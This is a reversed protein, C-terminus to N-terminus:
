CPNTSLREPHETCPHCGEGAAMLVGLTAVMFNSALTLEPMRHRVDDARGMRALALLEDAIRHVADHHLGLQVFAAQLGYQAGGSSRFWHGFRCPPFDTAADQHALVAEITQTVSAMWRHHSRTAARLALKDTTTCVEPLQQWAADAQWQAIWPVLQEAPMPRAVGYGQALTCGLLLLAAGHELTEVGEAIVPRNFAQALRVVSDVIGLDNPDDLMDRVFSQDIKILDVSLNRFYALSSYGTGFDDLAFRVGLARCGAVVQSASNLDGIAATELIELELQQPAVDPHRALASTLMAVFGEALLHDASINVSVELRTGQRLWTSLQSLATDIVWEGLALDFPQGAALQLFQGPPRLGLEPHQWRLLAEAGVVVGTRLNVKPQYYLLLENQTLAQELRQLQERHVKVQKDHEPDFLHYRNKGEQKATYMAQDAHRLLTDPDADDHPYLTLGISASVRVEANGVAMPQAISRLMRELVGHSEEPHRLNALLLVFEDGGLRALTDDERLVTQLRRAIEILLQDGVDHGHLDNVEKFGDLDLMCVALTLKDRRARALAVKMRDGLLRRNPVGTLMDYQAIHALEAEHAKLRTIDSFVALYHSLEGDGGKVAAISLIEAYLEGTKRRNWVEGSWHGDTQLAQWMAAYFAAGQRGSGLMRPSKGVVEEAEYGTIRTFAPNVETIVNHADTIMIGDYSNAFASAALRLRDSADREATVDYVYGHWLTSGDPERQPSSQGKLWKISGDALIVRYEQKWSSLTRASEAISTRFGPLDDPHIVRTAIFSGDLADDPHVGYVAAMGGSAYPFSATGDAHLHYQYIFGPVHAALKQLRDLLEKRARETQERQTIDRGIGLVGLLTGQSDFVPTKITELLEEHGDSAFRLREENVTPKGAAMAKLDHARFFDALEQPVFDHDTKGIIADEAHGFLAEFRKNCAFYIGQADKLWFLDPIANVLTKLLSHERELAAEAHKRDSIDRAYGVTGIIHGNAVVPSKYTEIWRREDGVQVQEEVHKSQGSRLVTEDDAQYSRALDAPWIDLDTKGRLADTDPQGCAQAFPANAELFRGEPDKLWVMFPFNDLVARQFQNRTALETQLAHLETINRSVGLLAPQGNWSGQVVHTDVMVETGDTKLLPLPCSEREKRLMAGLVEQALAHVRPPHVSLVHQGLLEPGHGLVKHVAPNVYIIHGTTNLVFVFDALTSFFGELNQRQMLADERASLREMALGFQIALTQLVDITSDPLRRVHKSALNLCARSRGNVRIPLVVLAVIGEAVMTPTRLLQGNDAPDAPEACTVVTTGDEVIEARPSGAPVVTAEALFADSLGTAAHLVYSGDADQLYLGGGDLDQLGLVTDLIARALTDRDPSGVLVQSFAVQLRHHTDARVLTTVDSVVGASMRPKGHADFAQVGGKAELWRWAGHPGPVRFRVATRAHGPPETLLAMVHPWDQEHVLRQWVQTTLVEADNAHGRMLALVTPSALLRQEVHDFQWTGLGSLNLIHGLQDPAHIAPQLHM